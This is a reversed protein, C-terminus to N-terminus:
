EPAAEECNVEAQMRRIAIMARLATGRVRRNDDRLLRELTVIFGPHGIKGMAWAATARFLADPLLSIREIEEAVAMEGMMSLGVLANGVVRNCEDGLCTRLLDKAEASNLGWLGQVANARVRRDPHNLQKAAWAASQMRRSVFLVAKSSIQPDTSHALHGLIPLLRRGPSAEDLLTLTRAVRTSEPSAV